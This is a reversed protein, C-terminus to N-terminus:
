PRGPRKPRGPRDSPRKKDNRKGVVSPNGTSPRPPGVVSRDRGVATAAPKSPGTTRKPPHGDQKGTSGTRPLGAGRNGRPARGKTGAPGRPAAGKGPAKPRSVSPAVGKSAKGKGVANAGGKPPGGGPTARAPKGKSGGAPVERDSDAKPKGDSGKKVAAEAQQKAEEEAKRKAEAEADRTAQDALAARRLEPYEAEVTSDTLGLDKDLWGGIPYIFYDESRRVVGGTPHVFVLQGGDFADGEAYYEAKRNRNNYVMVEDLRDTGLTRLLAMRLQMYKRDKWRKPKPPGPPPPPPVHRDVITPVTPPPPEIIAVAVTDTVTKGSGDTVSLTYTETFPKSVDIRTKLRNPDSLRDPPSWEITYEGDGGTATGVLMTKRRSPPAKIDRGAVARLPVPPVYEWFPKSEWIIAYNRDLHRVVTEPQELSDVQVRGVIRQQPLVWLEVPVTLNVRDRGRGRGRGRRTASAPYLKVTGMRVLQPLEAVDRLFEVASQLTGEAKVVLGMKMLNTKGVNTARRRTVAMDALHHKEILRTVRDRVDTEVPGVESAGVRALYDRYRRKAADVQEKVVLLKDYVKRREALRTEITLVPEIWAPYVVRALFAGGALIGFAIALTKSRRDM